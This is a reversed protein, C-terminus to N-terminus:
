GLMICNLILNFHLSIEDFKSGGVERITWPMHNSLNSLLSTVVYLTDWFIDVGFWAVQSGTNERFRVPYRGLLQNTKIEDFDTLRIKMKMIPLDQLAIQGQRVFMTM